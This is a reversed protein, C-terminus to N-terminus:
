PRRTSSERLERLLDDRVEDWDEGEEPHARYDALREAIVERHWEPIPLVAERATIRDWLAQVYDLKEDITLEDFGPPPLTLAHGM